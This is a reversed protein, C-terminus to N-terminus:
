NGHHLIDGASAAMIMRAAFRCREAKYCLSKIREIARRQAEQISFQGKQACAGYDVVLNYAVDVVSKTAIRKEEMLKSGMLPLFYLVVGLIAALITFVSIGIVKTSIKWDRPSFLTMIGGRLPLYKYYNAM